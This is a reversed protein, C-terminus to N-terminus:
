FWIDISIKDCLGKQINWRLAYLTFSAPFDTENLQIYVYIVFLKRVISLTDATESHCNIMEYTYSIQSTVSVAHLKQTQTRNWIPTWSPM